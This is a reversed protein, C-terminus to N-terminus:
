ALDLVSRLSGLGAFHKVMGLSDRDELSHPIRKLLEQDDLEPALREKPVVHMFWYAAMQPWKNRGENQDHWKCNLIEAIQARAQYAFIYEDIAHPEASKPCVCNRFRSLLVPEALRTSLVFIRRLMCINERPRSIISEAPKAKLGFLQTLTQCWLRLARDNCEPIPWLTNDALCTGLIDLGYLVLGVFAEYCINLCHNITAFAGTGSPQIGVKFCFRITGDPLRVVLIGIINLAACLVAIPEPWGYMLALAKWVLFQNWARQTLDWSSLDIQLKSYGSLADITKWVADASFAFCRSRRMDEKIMGILLSELVFVISSYMWIIRPNTLKGTDVRTSM